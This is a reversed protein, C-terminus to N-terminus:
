SVAAEGMWVCIQLPALLHLLTVKSRRRQNHSRIEDICIKNSLQSCDSMNSSSEARVRDAMNATERKDMHTHHVKDTVSTVKAVARDLKGRNDREDQCTESTIKMINCRSKM